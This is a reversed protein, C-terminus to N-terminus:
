LHLLNETDVRLRRRVIKKRCLSRFYSLSQIVISHLEKSLKVSFASRRIRCLSCRSFLSICFFNIRFFSGTLLYNILSMGAIEYLINILSPLRFDGRKRTFNRHRQPFLPFCIAVTSSYISSAAILSLLNYMLKATTVSFFPSPRRRFAPPIHIKSLSIAETM